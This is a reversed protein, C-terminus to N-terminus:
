FCANCTVSTKSLISIRYKFFESMSFVIKAKELYAKMKAQNDELEQQKSQLERDKSECLENLEIM